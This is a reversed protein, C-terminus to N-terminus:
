PKLDGMMDKRAPRAREDVCSMHSCENAKCEDLTANGTTALVAPAATFMRLFPVCVGFSCGTSPFIHFAMVDAIFL